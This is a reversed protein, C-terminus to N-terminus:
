LGAHHTFLGSAVTSLDIFPFQFIKQFLYISRLADSINAIIMIIYSGRLALSTRGLISAYLMYVVLYPLLDQDCRATLSLILGGGEIRTGNCVAVAIGRKTRM